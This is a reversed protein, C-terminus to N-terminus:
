KLIMIDKLSRQFAHAVWNWPRATKLTRIEVLLMHTGHDVLDMPEHHEHCSAHPESVSGASPVGSKADNVASGTAAPLRTIRSDQSASLHSSTYMLYVHPSLSSIGPLQSEKQFGRPKWAADNACASGMAGHTMSKAHRPLRVAQSPQGGM